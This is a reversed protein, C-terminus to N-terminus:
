RPARAKLYLANGQQAVTVDLLAGLHNPFATRDSPVMIAGTFARDAVGPDVAIHLGAARGVDEAVRWLPADRYVFHGTRWAGVAVPDVQSVEVVQSRDSRRLMKGAGLRVAVGDPDYLVAGQAVAVESGRATRAVDFRTGLDVMRAGGADVTFPRTEDHVVSFMAEGQELRATRGNSRDLVLRSGGNLAIRTGDSLHVLRHEGPATAIALEALPVSPVMLAFIAAAAAAVGAVGGGIMGVRRWGSGRRAMLPAAVLTIDLVAALDHGAFADEYALNHAPDAELWDTLADWDSFRPDRARAMWLAAQDRIAADIM